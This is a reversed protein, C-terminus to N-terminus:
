KKKFKEFWEQETLKSSWGYTESYDMNDQGQRFAERLDEESYSREQALKYGKIFMDKEGDCYPHTISECNKIAVEELTEQKSEEVLPVEKYYNALEEVLEPFPLKELNTKPEDQPIIIKYYDVDYGYADQEDVYEKIIHKTEVEECSPNKVFWNLFEDDIAQIGDAILDQDTTLIVKQCGKHPTYEAKFIMNCDPKWFYDGAKIKEDCTIYIHVYVGGFNNNPNTSSNDKLFQLHNRNSLLLRSTNETKILHIKKM